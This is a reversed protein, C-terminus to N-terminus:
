DKNKTNTDKKIIYEGKGKRSILRGIHEERIEKLDMDEKKMLKITNM